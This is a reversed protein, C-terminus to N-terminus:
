HIIIIAVQLPCVKVLARVLSSKGSGTEGIFSVLAPFQHETSKADMSLERYRSTIDLNAGQHKGMDKGDGQQGVTVGFWKSELADVHDNATNSTPAMLSALM